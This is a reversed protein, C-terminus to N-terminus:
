VATAVKASPKGTTSTSMSSSSSSNAAATKAKKRKKMMAAAVANRVNDVIERSQEVYQQDELREKRKTGAAIPASSSTRSPGAVRKTTPTTTAGTRHRSSGEGVDDAGEGGEEASGSEEGNEEADALRRAAEEFDAEARPQRGLMRELKAYKKKQADDLAKLRAPENEIYTALAKAEKMVSLRRGNLDRCSDTNNQGQKASMKGGAARLMSGFGGKGGLMRPHVRLIVLEDDDDGKNERGHLPQSDLPLIRGPTTSSTLYCSHLDDNSDSHSDSDFLAEQVGTLIDAATAESPLSLSLTHPLPAFAELLVSIHSSSSM